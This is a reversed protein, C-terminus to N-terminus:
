ARVVCPRRANTGIRVGTGFRDGGWVRCFFAKGLPHFARNVALFAPLLVALAKGRNFGDKAVDTVVLAQVAERESASLLNIRLPFEVAEDVVDLFERM